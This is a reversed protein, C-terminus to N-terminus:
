LEDKASFVALVKLKDSMEAKKEPAVKGAMIKNVRTIESEAYSEGKESIKQMIKVYMAAKKDTSYADAVKQAEKIHEQTMGGKMFKKAIEDLEEITGVSPMRVKNRRLWVAIDAAKIPGSYRLGDKNAENFLFYSPFDDKVLKYKERLDDNEKDGYEQVPVEGILFKPVSYALKALEKFEDEKEGYAYSQDFKILVDHEPVALLKSFTYNDVKLAGLATGSTGTVCFAAAFCAFLALM